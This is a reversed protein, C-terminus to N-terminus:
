ISINEPAPKAQRPNPRRLGSATQSSRAVATASKHRSYKSFLEALRGILRYSVIKCVADTLKGYKRYFLNFLLYAARQDKAEPLRRIINKISYIRKYINIYGKYLEGSTMGAPEFVVNATNYLSLDDTVIRGEAKM